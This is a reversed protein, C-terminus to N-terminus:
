LLDDIKNTIFSVCSKCNNKKGKKQEIISELLSKTSIIIIYYLLYFAFSILTSLLLVKETNTKPLKEFIGNLWLHLLEIPLINGSLLEKNYQQLFKSYESLIM